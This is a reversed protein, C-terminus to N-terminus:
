ARRAYGENVDPHRRIYSNLGVGQSALVKMNEVHQMGTIAHTYTYRRFRGAMFEVAIFDDGIEYARVGSMGSLNLYMPM